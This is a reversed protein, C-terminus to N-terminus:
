LRTNHDKQDHTMEFKAAVGGTGAAGSCFFVFASGQCRHHSFSVWIKGAHNGGGILQRLKRRLGAWYTRWACCLATVDQNPGISRLHVYQALESSGDKARCSTAIVLFHSDIRM